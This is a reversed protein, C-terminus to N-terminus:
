TYSFLIGIPRWIVGTFVLEQLMDMYLLSISYTHLVCTLRGVVALCCAFGNMCFLPFM